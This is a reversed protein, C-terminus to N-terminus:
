IRSNNVREQIEEPDIWERIIRPVPESNDLDSRFSNTTLLDEWVLPQMDTDSSVTEFEDDFIVHFQPSIRGTRLNRVLAM